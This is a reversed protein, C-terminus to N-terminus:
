FDVRLDQVDETKLVTVKQESIRYVRTCVELVSPRHTTVICTKNKKSQMINGLVRRETDVDLASTAEDLLLIPADSIYARAISIRQVQGESFGGGREKVRAYIEGPLDRIFEYACAAKLAERVEDDTAEPRMTRVNEAVTGSFLTNGQPVYSFLRRTSASLRVANQEESGYVISQGKKGSVIGLLIRLLTTKGEGSPGVLAVIENPHAELSAHLLVPPAGRYSFDLDVIKVSFGNDGDREVMKEVIEDDERNEPPLEMIEKVRGAATAASIASPVVGLLASFSSSLTSSLNLFLTMTGFAIHGSMLRFVAWGFCASSVIMGVVSMLASTKISFKNYKLKVDRFTAQVDRLRKSYQDAIGFSKIIQVNQFSEENFAMVDSSVIRMRKNFERMKRMLTKSVFMMVPASLLALGALTPDYYFIIAFAGIFQVARTILTPIWGLVSSSITSVDNDVRNLLDGSHYESMAEWDARMIQEYVDARIEQDVRLEIKASVRGSLANAGIRFLALGVYGIALWVLLSRDVVAGPFMLSPTVADIIYKVFVSSALGMVTAFVGLFIYWAIQAKYKRNYSFLFRLEGFIEKLSGDKIKQILKRWVRM